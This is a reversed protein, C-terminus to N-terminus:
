VASQQQQWANFKELQSATISKTSVVIAKKFDAYTIPRLDKEGVYELEDAELDRLPEFSAESAISTIDSCSFGETQKVIADVQKKNLNHKGAKKLLHKILAERAELDPLPVMIRRPFRRMVASDVDWPCNTCALVLVNKGNVGDKTIGDMQVMFETKLRRSAEHEGDSKRASLLSDMEDIFIISPACKRAVDFLTRVLKEAEGMWKSTMTSATCVFLRSGSSQAIAKVLMTKGTGPPGRMLINQPKRLGTFLDPRKLPMIAAEQLAQKVNELGAIDKWTIQQLSSTSVMLETQVIHYLENTGERGDSSSSPQISPPPNCQSSPRKLNPMSSQRPSTPTRRTSRSPGTAGGGAASNTPASRRSATSQQKKMGANLDKHAPTNSNGWLVSSVANSISHLAGGNEQRNDRRQVEASSQGACTQSVQSKIREADDLAALVRRQIATADYDTEISNMEKLCKLLLEIALEYSRLAGRLNDNDRLREAEDLGSLGLRIDEDTLSRPVKSPQRGQMALAQEVDHQYRSVGGDDADARSTHIVNGDNNRSDSRKM